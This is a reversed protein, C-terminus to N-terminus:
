QFLSMGPLAHEGAGPLIHAAKGVTLTPGAAWM